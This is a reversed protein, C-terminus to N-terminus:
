DEEDEFDEDVEYNTTENLNCSTYSEEGSFSDYNTCTDDNRGARAYEYSVNKTVRVPVTTTVLDRLSSATTIQRYPLNEINKFQEPDKMLRACLERDNGGKKNLDLQTSMKILSPLEQKMKRRSSPINRAARTRMRSRTTREEDNQTAHSMNEVEHLITDIPPLYSLTSTKGKGLKSRKSPFNTGGVRPKYSSILSVIHQSQEQQCKNLASLLEMRESSMGQVRVLSSGDDGGDKDVKDWDGEELRREIDLEYERMDHLKGLMNERANFKLKQERKNRQEVSSYASSHHNRDIILTKSQNMSSQYADDDDDDDNHILFPDDYLEDDDSSPPPLMFIGDKDDDDDKGADLTNHFNLAHNNHQNHNQNTRGKTTGYGKKNRKKKMNGKKKKKGPRGPSTSLEDLIDNYEIVDREYTNLISTWQETYEAKVQQSDELISSITAIAEDVGNLLNQCTVLSPPAVITPTSMIQYLIIISTHIRRTRVCILNSIHPPHESKLKLIPAVVFYALSIRSQTYPDASILSKLNQDERSRIWPRIM